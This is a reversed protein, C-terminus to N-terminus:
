PPVFPAPEDFPEEGPPLPLPPQKDAPLIVGGVEEAKDLEGAAGHEELLKSIPEITMNPFHRKIVATAEIGNMKPMNIDMLVVNPQLRELAGVAEEGSSAEGVIFIDQHGELLVRLGQRIMAHDDVLLVRVPEEGKSRDLSSAM